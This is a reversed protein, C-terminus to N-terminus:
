EIVIRVVKNNVQLLYTGGALGASPVVVVDEGAYVRSYIRQGVANYLSVQEIGSMHVTLGADKKVPNPFVQLISGADQLSVPVVRSYQVQGGNDVEKLRYYLVPVNLRAADKHTFSYHLVSNSSGAAPQVGAQRYTAGDTSYEVVYHDSNWERATTWQTLVDAGAPKATFATLTVPLAVVVSGIGIATINSQMTGTLTSNETNGSAAASGQTGSLNVWATGNWGVLRLNVASVFGSMDPISVTVTSGSANNNLDQWDWQGVMSVAVIGTGVSATSHAGAPAGTSTPDLNSGPNGAIWATALIATAPLSGSVSLTRLDSQAATAGDVGVPFSFSQGAASAYFKVYGDVLAFSGDGAGTYVGGPAVASFYGPTAGRDTVWTQGGPTALDEQAFTTQEAGSFVHNGTQGRAAQTAVALAIFCIIRYKSM